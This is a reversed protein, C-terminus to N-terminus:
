HRRSSTGELAHTRRKNGLVWCIWTHIYIYMHIYGHTYIYTCMYIYVYIDTCMCIHVDGYPQECHRYSDCRNMVEKGFDTPPVSLGSLHM